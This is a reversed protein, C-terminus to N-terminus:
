SQWLARPVYESRPDCGIDPIASLNEFHSGTTGPNHTFDFLDTMYPRKGISLIYSVMNQFDYIWWDTTQGEQLSLNGVASM